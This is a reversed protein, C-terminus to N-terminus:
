LLHKIIKTTMLSIVTDNIVLVVKMDYYDMPEVTMMVVVVMMM